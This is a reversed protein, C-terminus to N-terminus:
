PDGFLRELTLNSDRPLAGGLAIVYATAVRVDGEDLSGPAWRPMTARVYTLLGLPGGFRDTLTAGNIAPPSGLSFASGIRDIEEQSMRAPNNARHCRLCASHSPPFATRAEDLGAGSAGHCASCHFMYVDRGRDLAELMRDSAHAHGHADRADIPNAEAGVTALTAISAGAIMALVAIYAPAFALRLM